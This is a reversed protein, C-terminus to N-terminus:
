EIVSVTGDANLVNIYLDGTTGDPNVVDVFSQELFTVFSRPIFIYSWLYSRRRMLRRFSDYKILPNQPDIFVYGLPGCEISKLFDMRTKEYVPVRVKM